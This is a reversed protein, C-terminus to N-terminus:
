VIGAAYARQKFRMRLGKPRLTLNEEVDLTETISEFDLERVLTALVLVAEHLAFARGICARPGTGFPKYQEANPARGLFRQPDFDDANEGWVNRDRHVGLLLTFVWEGKAIAYGGLTTDVRAARFFGPATPWLRLTESVVARTYRLKAVDSHTIMGDACVATLEERIRASIQPDAAIYHAAFALVNGTTEHGAVLFTIVQEAILEDDMPVATTHLMLDLLDPNREGSRKREDIVARVTARLYDRDDAAQKARSRGLLAGIVPIASQQTEALTRTLAAAFPHRDTGTFPEFSYGFGCQGIVELAVNGMFAAVDEIESREALAEVADDAVTHMAAHYGVMSGKTFGPMLTEHGIAWEPSDNATTFLGEGGLVKLRQIPRGAFREWTTEDAVEAMLAASGVFTLKAGGIFKRRYLPGLRAMQELTKQNPRAFDMGLIDGLLPVRRPPHPIKKAPLATLASSVETITIGM